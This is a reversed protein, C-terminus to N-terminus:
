DARLAVNPDVRAARRAPIVSAVLAILLLAMAVGGFIGADHPSTEFLLPAVWRGAAWAVLLGLAVAVTALRMGEGVVMGLIDGVRAGLAVRVGLEHRRQLVGYSIVSYLGVAALLLALGGFVTFMTAGLAFARRERGMQDLPMVTVYSAGPMVQSLARRVEEVAGAAPGRVRVFLGGSEPAIQVVPRYYVPTPESLSSTKIDQAIGVVYTCPASDAGVRVCKGIAEDGPGRDAMSQSAVMVRQTGQRDSEEIGRGRVLATGMTAFYESTVGQIEFRGLKHVSDIGAVFLDEDWTRWFPVTVQRSAHEVEPLASAAALLRERLQLGEVSDLAVERMQLNVYLVREPDFGLPSSLARQLSRVFLGAGVLLVVSLGVQLVLMGTRFGSRQYTGERVGAKLANAVDSRGAQWAPVVGTLLGAVLALAVTLGLIRGDTLASSRAVDSLLTAGLIGGGFQALLIGSAGGLLALLLSEVLIQRLLRARSVGLALRVAIERRRGITRALLLNGVNACAILLVVGAVGM